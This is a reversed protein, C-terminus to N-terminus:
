KGMEIYQNQSLSKEIMELAQHEEFGNAYIEVYDGPMIRVTLLEMISQLSNKLDITVDKHVLFLTCKFRSADEVILSAPHAFGTVTTIKFRKKIM